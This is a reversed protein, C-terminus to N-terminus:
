GPLLTLLTPAKKRKREKKKLDLCLKTYATLTFNQHWLNFQAPLLVAPNKYLCINLENICM